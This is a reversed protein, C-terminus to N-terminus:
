PAGVRSKHTKSGHFYFHFNSLQTQSKTLRHVICDRSNELGSYKKWAVGEEPFRGLRPISGMANCASEKGASGGPFGLFTFSAGKRQSDTSQITWPIRWALISSHTATGEGPFRGLGPISGLEGANCTSEKGASGGPFGDMFEVLNEIETFFERKSGAISPILLWKQCIGLSKWESLFSSLWLGVLM